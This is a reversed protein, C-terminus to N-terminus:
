GERFINRLSYSGTCAAASYSGIIEFCWLHVLYIKRRGLCYHNINWLFQRFNPTDLLTSIFALDINNFQFKSSSYKSSINVSNYLPRQNSNTTLWTFCVFKCCNGHSHCMQLRGVPPTQKESFWSTMLYSLFYVYFYRQTMCAECMMSRRVM